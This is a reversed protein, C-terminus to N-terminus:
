SLSYILRQEKELMGRPATGANKNGIASLLSEALVKANGSQANNQTAINNAFPLLHDSTIPATAPLQQGPAVLQNWEAVMTGIFHDQPNDTALAGALNLATDLSNQLRSNGSRNQRSFFGTAQIDQQISQRKSQMLAQMLESVSSCNAIAQRLTAVEAKRASNVFWSTNLYEDLLATVVPKMTDLLDVRQGDAPQETMAVLARFMLLWNKDTIKAVLNSSKGLWRDLFSLRQSQASERQMWEGLVAQHAERICALGPKNNQLYRVYDANAQTLNPNALLSRVQIKVSEADVDNAMPSTFSLAMIEAPVCDAMTVLHNAAPYLSAAEFRRSLMTEMRALDRPVSYGENLEQALLVDFDNMVAHIFRTKDWTQHRKMEQYRTEMNDSFRGWAGQLFAARSHKKFAADELRMVDQYLYDMVDYLEEQFVRERKAQDELSRSVGAPGNPGVDSHQFCYHVDGPSGQRGTRGSKQDMRRASDPHTHIVTMGQTYDYHIDTNRGLASTTITLMNAAKAREIVAMEDGLGTFLQSTPHTQRISEFLRTATDIDKCFLIKPRTQNTQLLAKIGAIQLSENASFTPTHHTVRRAKHPAISSFAFGYKQFQEKREEDSGVTGSDGWIFGGAKNQYRAMLNKNNSATITRSETEIVFEQSDREHNLKAYLLQQAGNGLQTDPSVKGDQMLLKIIRSTEAIGHCHTTVFEEPIVYDHNERLKYNDLIASVIWTLLQANDIQDIGRPSKQLSRAQQKLYDRLAAIDEAESTNRQASERFSDSTVFRNIAYYIWEQGIGAGQDRLACRYITRDELLSFDSENMVLSVKDQPHELTVGHTDAKAFFLALQAFTSYNIGRREFAEFPSQSDIPQRGHPIELLNFFPSYIQIDRRADVISSTSFDVRDSDIWLLAVKMADFLSKGEGPDINSIVEGEHMMCDILALMQTSYPFQGTSRYAAERILGLALLRKNFDGFHAFEGAKIAQFCARIEQNSLDRAAKGKYVPLDHGIRNVFLFAEMWQKRYQLPYLSNNSMDQSSNVVREVQSVDFQAALDRAGFPAKEFRQLFDAFPEGSHDRELVTQLCAINPPTTHIFDHLQEVKDAGLQELQAFLAAYNVPQAHLQRAPTIAVCKAVIELAKSRSAASVTGLAQAFVQTAQPHSHGLETLLTELAHHGAGLLQASDTLLLLENCELQPNGLLLQLTKDGADNSFRNMVLQKLAPFMVKGTSSDQLSLLREIYHSPFAQLHLERVTALRTLTKDAEDAAHTQLIHRLIGDSQRQPMDRLLNIIAYFTDYAFASLDTQQLLGAIADDSQGQRLIDTLVSVINSTMEIIQNVREFSSSDSFGQLQLINTQMVTKLSSEPMSEFQQTIQAEKLRALLLQVAAGAGLMYAAGCDKWLQNFTQQLAEVPLRYLENDTKDSSSAAPQADDRMAQMGSIFLILLSKLEQNDRLAFTPASYEYDLKHRQLLTKVQGPDFDPIAEIDRMADLFRSATFATNGSMIAHCAFALNSNPGASAVKLLYTKVVDMNSRIQEAMRWEDSLDVVEDSWPAPEKTKFTRGLNRKHLRKERDAFFAETPDPNIRWSFLLLSERFTAAILPEQALFAETDLAFTLPWKMNAHQSIWNLMKQVAFKNTRLRSLLNEVLEDKNFRFSEFNASNMGNWHEMLTLGEEANLKIDSHSLRILTGLISEYLRHIYRGQKFINDLIRDASQDRQYREHATFLLSILITEKSDPHEAPYKYEAKMANFSNLWDRLTISHKQTGIYRCALVENLAYRKPAPNTLRSMNNVQNPTASALHDLTAPFIRKVLKDLEKQEVPITQKNGDMYFQNSWARVTTPLVQLKQENMAVFYLTKEFLVWAQNNALIARLAAPTMNGPDQSLRILGCVPSIRAHLSELTERYLSAQPNFPKKDQIAHDCQLAMQAAVLHFGEHKVAYYPGYYGLDIGSLNHLQENFDRSDELITLLREMYVVPNGGEPTTFDPVYHLNIAARKCLFQLREWFSDFAQLTLTLHHKSSGTKELFAALWQQKLPHYAAMKHLNEIFENNNLFHDWHNFHMLYGDYLTRYLAPAAQEFQSLASNFANAGKEGHHFYLKIMRWNESFGEPVLEPLYASISDEEHGYARPTFVNQPEDDASYIDFDLVGEGQPTRKFMFGPPLNCPNLSALAACHLTMQTYAAPTLFKIGHATNGFMEQNLLPSGAAFSDAAMMLGSFGQAGSFGPRFFEERGILQGRYIATAQSTQQVQQQIEAMEAIEQTVAALEIHQVELKIPVSNVPRGLVLAKLAITKDQEVPNSTQASDSSSNFLTM